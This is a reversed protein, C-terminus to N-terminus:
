RMKSANPFRRRNSIKKMGLNDSIKALQVKSIVEMPDDPKDLGPPNWWGQNYFWGGGGEPGMVAELEKEGYQHDYLAPPPPDPETHKPEMLPDMKDFEPDETVNSTLEIKDYKNM